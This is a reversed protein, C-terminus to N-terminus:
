FANVFGFAQFPTEGAVSLPAGSLALDISVQYETVVDQAYGNTATADARAEYQHIAYDLGDIPNMFSGYKNVQTVIGNRNQVPIWPLASYTGDQAAIMYGDNYGLAAGLSTLEPAHIFRIDSFQFASNEANQAGQNANWNNKNWAVTDCFVVLGSSWNNIDMATKLIQISRKENAILIECVDTAADFQCDATAVNVGSRGAHLFNTAGSDLGIAMNKAVNQLENNLMEQLNYLNTDGQKLSQKFVDTYTTWSLALTDTDGVAGTHNHTRSAGLARQTRKNYYTTVIRDERTRLAQYAPLMTTGNRLFEILVAPVRSRLEGAQFAGLLKAQATVWNSPTYNAM